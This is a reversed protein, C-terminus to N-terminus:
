KGQYVAFCQTSRPLVAYCENVKTFLLVNHQGLYFLM